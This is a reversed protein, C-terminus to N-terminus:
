RYEGQVRSMQTADRPQFQILETSGAHRKAVSGRCSSAGRITPWCSWRAARLLPAPATETAPASPPLISVPRSEGLAQGPIDRLDGHFVTPALPTLAVPLPTSPAAHSTYVRAGLALLASLLLLAQLRQTRKPM